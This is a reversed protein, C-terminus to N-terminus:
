ERLTSNGRAAASAVTAELETFGTGANEEATGIDEEGLETSCALSEPAM